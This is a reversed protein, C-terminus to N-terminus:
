GASSGGEGESIEIEFVDLSTEIGNAENMSEGAETRMM